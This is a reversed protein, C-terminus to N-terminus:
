SVAKVRGCEPCLGSEPLPYACAVCLGRAKRLWARVLGFAIIGLWPAAGYLAVNVALGKWLPLIPLTRGSVTRAWGPLSVKWAGRRDPLSAVPGPTGVHAESVLARWPWGACFADMQGGTRQPSEVIGMADSITIGWGSAARVLTASPQWGEPPPAPWSSDHVLRPPGPDPAWLACAWAVAVSTVLGFLAALVVRITLRKM